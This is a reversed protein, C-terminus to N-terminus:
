ALAKFSRNGLAEKSISIILNNQSIKKTKFAVFSGEKTKILCMHELWHRTRGGYFNLTCHLFTYYATFHVIICFILTRGGGRLFLGPYAVHELWRKLQLQLEMQLLQKEMRCAECDEFVIGSAEVLQFRSLSAHRWAGSSKGLAPTAISTGNTRRSPGFTYLCFDQSLSYM